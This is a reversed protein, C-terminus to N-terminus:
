PCPPCKKTSAVCCGCGDPDAMIPRLTAASIRSELQGIGLSGTDSASIAALEEATLNYGSLAKGPMQRVAQLFAPDTLMRSVVERIVDERM